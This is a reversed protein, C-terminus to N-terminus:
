FVSAAEVASYSFVAIIPFVFSLLFVICRRLVTYMFDYYIIVLIYALAWGSPRGASYLHHGRNLAAFNLQRGSSSHRATVSGLRLVRQFKYPHGWVGSGIEATLPGFNVM